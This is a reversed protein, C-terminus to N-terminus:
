TYARLADEPLMPDPLRSQNAAALDHDVFEFDDLEAEPSKTPDMYYAVHKGNAFFMHQGLRPRLGKREAEQVMQQFRKASSSVLVRFFDPPPAPTPSVKPFRHTM